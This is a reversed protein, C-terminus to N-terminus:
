RGPMAGALETRTSEGAVGGSVPLAVKFVTGHLPDSAVEIRGRHREVIGQSVALGLGAGHGGEKTTFFPEFVHALTEADM